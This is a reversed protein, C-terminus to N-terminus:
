NYALIPIEIEVRASVSSFSFGQGSITDKLGTSYVHNQVKVNKWNYLTKKESLCNRKILRVYELSLTTDETTPDITYNEKEEGFPSAKFHNLGSPNLVSCQVRDTIMRRISRDNKHLPSRKSKITDGTQM